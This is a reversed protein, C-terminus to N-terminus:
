RARASQILGVPRSLLTPTTQGPPVMLATATGPEPPLWLGVQWPHTFFTQHLLLADQGPPEPSQPYAAYWGVLEAGPFNYRLALGATKWQVRFYRLLDQLGEVHAGAVFGEIEVFAEGDDPSQYHTGVLLGGAVQNPSYGGNYSLEALVDQYIYAVPTGVVPRALPPRARTLPEIM